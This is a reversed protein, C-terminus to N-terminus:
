YSSSSWRQEIRFLKWIGFSIAWVIVFLGVLVYGLSGLDLNNVWAWFGFNWGSESSIVQTAEILGIVLAAVVSLSTVSLNYYIKRLPTSFAWGYATTMFIGDATDMLSMGAAFLLPLAVIGTVPIASKAAGASLALLAVESATDFGMGFLVGIPYIHWSRNVMKLLPGIIRAILGRSALLKELSEEHRTQDRRMQKFLKFIGILVGLNVVGILILFLASVCTGIVGGVSQFIPMSRQAWQVAMALAVAMAFVITSHGLSFYFGVGSSDKNEQRLKRVTNDIAAIHDCDFAHRLGFTYAVLGLGLLTPHQPATTFLCILGLVHLLIVFGGYRWIPKRLM